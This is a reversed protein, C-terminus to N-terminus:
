PEFLVRFTVLIAEDDVISYMVLMGPETMDLVLDGIQERGVRHDPDVVM